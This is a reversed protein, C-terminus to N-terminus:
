AFTPAPTIVLERLRNHHANKMVVTAAHFGYKTILARVEASADYTMLFNVEHGALLRFLAEHDLWSDNYLRRGARKGGATYPPDLFVATRHEQGQLILPLLRTGDGEFFAIRGSFSALPELRLALLGHIFDTGPPLSRPM